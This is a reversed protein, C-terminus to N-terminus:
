RLLVMKRTQGKEGASLRYFYVGSAVKNSADNTADWEFQHLGAAHTGSYLMRVRQGLLNYVELSVNTTKSLELNINTVPNFPNPYNQHLQFGGPM